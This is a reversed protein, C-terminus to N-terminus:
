NMQIQVAQYTQFAPTLCSPITLLRPVMLGTATSSGLSQRGGGRSWTGGGTYPWSGTAMTQYYPFNQNFTGGAGASVVINTSTATSTPAVVVSFLQGMSVTASANLDYEFYNSGSYATSLIEKQTNAALLSSSGSPNGTSTSVTELWLMLNSPTTVTGFRIGIKCVAGSKPAQAVYAVSGSANMTFTGLGPNSNVNTAPRPYWGGGSSLTVTNAKATFRPLLYFGFFAMGLVVLFIVAAIKLFRFM